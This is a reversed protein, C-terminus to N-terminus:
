KIKKIERDIKKIERSLTDIKQNKGWKSKAVSCVLKGIQYTLREKKVQLSIKRTKEASKLSFSKIQKEGSLIIKRASEIGKELEKKAHPWHKDKVEQFFDKKAM